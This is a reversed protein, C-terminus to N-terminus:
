VKHKSFDTHLRYVKKIGNMEGPYNVMLRAPFNVFGSTITGAEKLEKRLTLALQQRKTTLRGYKQEASIDFARDKICKMKFTEIVEQSLDWSHFAAYIWRKGKRSYELDEHSRDRERHVRKLESFVENYDMDLHRSILEALIKKTAQYNRTSNNTNEEGIEPVNKIVLTERLQRNTRDEINEAMRDMETPVNVLLEIKKELTAIRDTLDKFKKTNADDKSAIEERLETVSEDTSQINREIDTLKADYGDLRISIGDIKAGLETKGTEVSSKLDNVSTEMNTMFNKLRADLEANTLPM